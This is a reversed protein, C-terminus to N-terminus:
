KTDKKPATEPPAALGPHKEVAPKLTGRYMRLLQTEADDSGPIEGRELRLLCGPHPRWQWIPLPHRRWHVPPSCPTWSRTELIPPKADGLVHLERVDAPLRDASEVSRVVHGLYVTERVLYDKPLKYVTAGPPLGAALLRSNGRHNEFFLMRFAPHFSLVALQVAATACALRLWFPFTGGPRCVRRLWLALLVAALAAAMCSFLLRRDLGDVEIWGAACLGAAAASGGGLLLAAGAMWRPVFAVAGHFRRLLIEAHLGALVALPATLLLPAQPLLWPLFWGGFFLVSVLTRLFKCFVPTREVARFEVCLGPWALVAWPLLGAATRFPYSLLHSFYGDPTVAEAPSLWTFMTQGPLAREWVMALAALLVLSLAHTWTWFRPWIRLPWRLFCLPLYFYVVGMVGLALFALAAFLPGGLWAANWNRMVRLQRYWYFWGAALLAAALTHADGRRGAELMLVTGSVMAAAVAGALHGGSRAAQHGCLGALALVGLVSPLRVSWEPSLGFASGLAALWTYLPFMPVSEGNLTAGFLDGSDRLGAAAAARLAETVQLERLGLFPLYMLAALALVPMWWNKKPIPETYLVTPAGEPIVAWYLGSNGARRRPADTPGELINM